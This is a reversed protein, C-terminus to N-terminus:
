FVQRNCLYISYQIVKMIRKVESSILLIHLSPCRNKHAIPSIRYVADSYIKKFYIIESPFKM